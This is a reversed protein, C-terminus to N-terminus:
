NYTLCRVKILTSRVHHYYYYYYTRLSLFDIVFGIFVIQKSRIVISYSSNCFDDNLYKAGSMGSANTSPWSKSPFSIKDALYGAKNGGQVGSRGYGKERKEKM